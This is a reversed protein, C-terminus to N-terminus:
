FCSGWRDLLSLVDNMGVVGDFDVDPLGGPSSGWAGLLTLLDTDTDPFAEFIRVKRGDKDDTKQGASSPATAGVSITAVIWVCLWRTTATRQNRM